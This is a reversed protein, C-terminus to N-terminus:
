FKNEFVFSNTNQIIIYVVFFAWSVFISANINWLFYNAIHFIVLAVFFYIALRFGSEKLQFTKFTSKAIQTVIFIYNKEKKFNPYLTLFFNEINKDKFFILTVATIIIFLMLSILIDNISKEASIIFIKEGTITFMLAIIFYIIISWKKWESVERKFYFFYEFVKATKSSVLNVERSDKLANNCEDVLQMLAEQSSARITAINEKNTTKINNNTAM